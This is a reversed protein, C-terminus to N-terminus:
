VAEFEDGHLGVGVNRAWEATDEPWGGAKGDILPSAWYQIDSGQPLNDAKTVVALAGVPLIRSEGPNGHITEKIIKVRM